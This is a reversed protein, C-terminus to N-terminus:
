SRNRALERYNALALDVYFSVSHKKEALRAISPEAERLEAESLRTVVRRMGTEGQLLQIELSDAETKAEAFTPFNKRVRKGDLWGTVRFVIEGSPNKFESVVFNKGQKM